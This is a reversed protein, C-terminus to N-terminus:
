HLINQVFGINQITWCIINAFNNFINPASRLGFPLRTNVYYRHLWQIGLLHRQSKKVPLLRFAHQIDIKNILCNLGMKYVLDTADDFHGYQVKFSEKDIGENISGGRPQSLDMILRRPGDEKERSGLPSCHLKPLPPPPSPGSMHWGDLEKDIATAVAKEHETASILNHNCNNLSSTSYGIDFGNTLSNIIYHVMPQNPHQSLCQNMNVINVPTIIEKPLPNFKPDSHPVPSTPSTSLPTIKKANPAYTNSIANPNTAHDPTTIDSAYPHLTNIITQGTSRMGFGM